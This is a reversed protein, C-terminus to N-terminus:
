TKEFTAAEGAFLKGGIGPILSAVALAALCILAGDMPLRPGHLTEAHTLLYPLAIWFIAIAIPQARYKWGYSWRWGLLALIFLGILVGGLMNTVWADPAVGAGSYDMLNARRPETSGLFFYLCAKARSQLKKFPQEMAFHYVDTSLAAYRKAQPLGALEKRREASFQELMAEDAPGGTAKANNGVWIEYWATTVIPVPEGLDQYCRVVWSSLGCVFGFFAVLACLWGQPLRRSRLMFWMLMVVAFPLLAGRTLAALALSLGLLLSTLAGGQLGAQVGLFLSCAVLFTALTGDRMEACNIVWYPYLATAAGTLLGVILSAFARRATMYYLLATLAGMGVQVWRTLQQPKESFGVWGALHQELAYRFLPYGPAIHATVENENGLPAKGKFGHVPGNAKLSEVLADVETQKGEPMMTASQVHWVDAANPETGHLVYWGRVGGAVGLIILGLLLGLWKSRNGDTM